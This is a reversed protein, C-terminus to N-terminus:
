RAPDLFMTASRSLPAMGHDDRPNPEGSPDRLQHEGEDDNTPGCYRIAHRALEMARTRVDDRMGDGRDLSSAIADFLKATGLEVYELDPSLQRRTLLQETASRRLLLVDDRRHPDEDTRSNL